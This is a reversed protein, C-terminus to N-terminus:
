VNNLFQLLKESSNGQNYIYRSVFKMGNEIIYNRYAGDNLIKNLENELDDIRIRLCSNSRFVEPDKWGYEKVQISIVPKRFIEGELIVSSVDIVILVTCSKILNSINGAKFILIGPDIKQAIETVDPEDLSPHLKIILKKNLKTTIQCIKKIVEEYYQNTQVLLDQIEEKVPGSTALLIVGNESYAFDSNIANDLAPNGIIEVKDSSIKNKIMHQKTSEGWVLYKDAHMPFVGQYENMDYSEDTDYFYGHQLLIIPIKLKKALKVIIRETIGVETWVVVASFNNKRLLELSLEIECVYENFRKRLLENFSQKIVIWFSIEHINFFSSFFEDYNALVDIKSSINIIGENISNEINKNMINNYTAVKCKSRTIISYSIKNWIAPKRRNYLIFDMTTKPMSLFLKQYKISDFEVFLITKKSNNKENKMGVFNEIFKEMITRLKIYSKRSISFSFSRGLLNFKLPIIDYAFKKENQTIKKLKEVSKTFLKAVDFMTSTSIFKADHHKGYIQKCEIIKKFLPLLFYHFEVEVLQGLNVGKYELLDNIKPQSYWRILNLTKKQLLPLETKDLYDDSINHDIGYKNLLKHSEYDFTIVTVKEKKIIENLEEIDGSSDYLIVVNNISLNYM